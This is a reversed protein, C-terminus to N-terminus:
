HQSQEYTNDRAIKRFTVQDPITCVGPQSWQISGVTKQGESYVQSKNWKLMHVISVGAESFLALVDDGM